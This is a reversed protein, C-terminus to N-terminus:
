RATIVQEIYYDRNQSRWQVQALWRGAAFGSLDVQQVGQSDPALAIVRDAAASSPRYLTVSGGAAPRRDRPWTLTLRRGDDAVDIRFTNGLASVNAIAAMHRDEGLARAYYDESVLDVRQDMAYVGFGVTAAAFIAYVLAIGTGWRFTM